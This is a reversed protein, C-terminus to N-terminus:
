VLSINAFPPNKTEDEEDNQYNENDEDEDDEDDEPSTYQRASNVSEQAYRLIVRRIQEFSIKSRLDSITVNVIFILVTFPSRKGASATLATAANGTATM